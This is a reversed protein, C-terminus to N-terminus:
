KLDALIKEILRPVYGNLTQPLTASERPLAAIRAEVPRAKDGMADLANLALLSVYLGNRDVPALELLTDLAAQRDAAQGYEGLAQAAIARVSPSEDKLRRRLEAAAQNVAESGRMLLGMAAWYRVAGPEEALGRILAPTASEELLSAREAMGVIRDMPYKAEDRAMEYPTSGAALSHIEAEPLFGVDRIAFALDRQAKRMRDLIARHGASKALNNVEDPDAQLDYLEEPPKREWFYTRPPELKGQRYLDHWVQTAPTEFMYAVYQGYIKHPMFNRIYVYRRDRVSRVLDYREDMRGRFGYIYPQEPAIHAGLFAHGQMHPPPDIGALSLVAPALDVFGVLRESAGGPRYDPPALHRYKPPISVILPVQLGSNYPWRKSRPMGAGHDGYYFVITDEELGDKALQKLVEGALADMETMKDYYQAWDQRVELTDPHYAPIPVERPDHKWTHPRRRIQSEHTVTFNFIAFFPQGPKRNRWHATASSEDWVQGPKELNYDEKVNNTTYYGAERLYQPYMKMGAPRRVMSRMHESGTSPPYMGSIIATRAPACVPANSWAHRYIMGRAALRDLHPTVAFRDGYAGLQPGNDESTIWLINPRDTNQAGLPTVAPALGGIAILIALRKGM